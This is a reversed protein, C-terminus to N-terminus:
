HSPSVKTTYVTPSRSSLRSSLPNVLMAVLQVDYLAEPAYVRVRQLDFSRECIRNRDCREECLAHVELQIRIPVHELVIRIYVVASLEHDSLRGEAFAFVVKQPDAIM